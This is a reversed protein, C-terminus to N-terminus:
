GALDGAASLADTIAPELGAKMGAAILRAAESLSAGGPAKGAALEEELLALAADTKEALERYERITEEEEDSADSTEFLALKKRFAGVAERLGDATEGDAPAAIKELLLAGETYYADRFVASAKPPKAANQAGEILIGGLILVATLTGVALMCLKERRLQKKGERRSADLGEEPNEEAISVFPSPDPDKRRLLVTWVVAAPTLVACAGALLVAPVFSLWFRLSDTAARGARQQFHDQAASVAFLLGSGLARVRAEEASLFAEEMAKARSADGGDVAKGMADLIAAEQWAADLYGIYGYLETYTLRGTGELDFGGFLRETFASRAADFRGRFTGDGSLSPDDKWERFLAIVEGAAEGSGETMRSLPDPAALPLLFLAAILIVALVKKLFSLAGTSVGEKLGEKAIESLRKVSRCAACKGDVLVGGCDACYKVDDLPEKRPISRGRGSNDAGCVPCFSGEGILPSACRVCGSLGCFARKAEERFLLRRRGYYVAMWVTLCFAALALASARDLLYRDAAYVGMMGAPSYASLAARDKETVAIVTLEKLPLAAWLYVLSLALGARRWFLLATEAALFLLTVLIPILYERFGNRDRTWVPFLLMLMGALWVYHGIKPATARVFAQRGKRELRLILFFLAIGLIMLSIIRLITHFPLVAAEAGVLRAMRAGFEELPTLTM